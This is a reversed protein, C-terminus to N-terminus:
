DQDDQRHREVEAATAPRLYRTLGDLPHRKGPEPKPLRKDLADLHRSHRAQAACFQCM